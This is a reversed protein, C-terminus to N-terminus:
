NSPNNLPLSSTPSDFWSQIERINKLRAISENVTQIKLHNEPPTEDLYFSLESKKLSQKCAEYSKKFVEFGNIRLTEVIPLLRPVMYFTYPYDPKARQEKLWDPTANPIRLQKSLLLILHGNELFSDKITKELKKIQEQLPAEPTLGLTLLKQSCFEILQNFRTFEERSPLPALIEQMRQAFAFPHPYDIKQQASELWQKVRDKSTETTLFTKLKELWQTAPRLYTNLQDAIKQQKRKQQLEELIFTQLATPLKKILFMRAVDDRTKGIQISTFANSVDSSYFSALRAVVAVPTALFALLFFCSTKLVTAWFLPSIEVLPTIRGELSKYQKQGCFPMHQLPSFATNALTNLFNPKDLILHTTFFTELRIM